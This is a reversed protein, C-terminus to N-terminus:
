EFITRMMNEISYDKLVRRFSIIKGISNKRTIHIGCYINAVVSLAVSVTYQVNHPHPYGVWEVYAYAFPM